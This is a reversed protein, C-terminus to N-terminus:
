FKSKVLEKLKRIMELIKNKNNKLYVPEIKKGDYLSNNRKIILDNMFGIDGENFEKYNRLYDM